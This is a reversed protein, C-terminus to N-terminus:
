SNHEAELAAVKKEARIPLYIYYYLVAVLSFLIIGVRISWHWDTQRTVFSELFGAIIFVPILGIIIKLGSRGGRILSEKRSYTGPFLFSNGMLMGAGGAIVIASIELTGHIWISLLSDILVGKEFFFYQFAGLMIGNRLLIYGTGISSVVGSVFALFSVKINNTTIALFMSGSDQSKYVAMPDGNKINELTMDVYADSLILRVFTEDHAASLAGILCSLSFILLAYLLYRHAKRTELPIEETWFTKFRDKDQQKSQYIQKHYSATLTNLYVTVDSGPYYTQSYSLDESLATYYSALLDPSLQEPGILAKEINEWKKQNNHIFIPEKM